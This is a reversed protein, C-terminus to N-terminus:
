TLRNEDNVTITTHQDWEREFNRLVGLGDHITLRLELM